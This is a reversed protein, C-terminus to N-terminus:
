SLKIIRATRTAQIWEVELGFADTILRLPVFTVGQIAEPAVEV